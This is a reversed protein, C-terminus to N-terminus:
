GGIPKLLARWEDDGAIGTAAASLLSDALLSKKQQLQHIRDEVTKACLLKHVFVPKDQGIRYARDTAQNEAAPNWWPDYHIVTDAGTLNLGTGGAKLSILFLPIEGEQFAEVLKGRDRSSGTLQLYPINREELQEAILALMTTFQSFILVRRKEALLTELLEFLYDLKASQSLQFTAPDLPPDQDKLLRPDCCIQRLKLLADLITIKSQALGKAAIVERVRKDMTARVTEYLDKQRNSLEIPHVLTTKPPLEKAVEDKTRRLILPALRQQLAAQVEEDHEKEIPLQYRARFAEYPGLFGPMLYRMLSWIEGLSNEIPTGSLCLRHDAQLQCAAQSVKASPNKIHQAEDLIAYHFDQEKLKEGDRQLIAYSTLVLDAHQIHAYHGARRPGTLILVRLAPAFRRAEAQWNPVVSTPAVVLSPKGMARAKELVALTQITKGLGMDDALIGHLEHEALQCAWQFGSLQYSRLEAQLGEPPDAAPRDRTKLRQRLKKLSAPVEVTLGAETSLRAADLPHFRPHEPDVMASLHRLIRRLRGAPIHLAGGTPLYVLHRAEDPLEALQALTNDKLLDVLIPLLDLTEGEVEFGVSLSFWGGPVEEFAAELDDDGIVHLSHGFDDDVSIEWGAAELKPVAVARFWPWYQDPTTQYPEPFWASAEPPLEGDRTEKRAMALLFRFSPQGALHTLGLQALAELARFEAAKDRVTDPLSESALKTVPISHDGYNVTPRAVLWTERAPTRLAQLLLRAIRSTAPEVTLHLEFRPPHKVTEEVVTDEALAAAPDLDDLSKGRFRGPKQAAFLLAAAHACCPGYGCGCDTDFDWDGGEIPWLSVEAEVEPDDDVRGTILAGGDATEEVQFGTIRAPRAAKKGQQLIHDDFRALWQQEALFTQLPSRM